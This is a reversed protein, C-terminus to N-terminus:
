ENVVSARTSHAAARFLRDAIARIGSALPAKRKLSHSEVHRTDNSQSQGDLVESGIVVGASRGAKSQGHLLSEYVYMTKLAVSRWSYITEGVRKAALGMAACKVPDEIVTCIAEALAEVDKPPVVLGTNHNDVVESLGGTNTVVVSRGAAYASLLIGSQYTKLYPLVVVDAATFYYGVEDLPIYQNICRISTNQKLGALLDSYNCSDIRGAILLLVDRLRRRILPFAEVLYELGKYPKIQGFFLIVKMDRPVNLLAKAQERSVRGNRYFLENAGHPVVSITSGEINFLARMEKKDRESHVIIRDVQTYIEQFARREDLGDSDHPLLDHATYVLKFRLRKLAQLFFRDDHRNIVQFHILHPRFLLVLLLTKLSLFFLRVNRLFELVSPHKDAPHEIPGTTPGSNDQEGGDKGWRIAICSSILAKVWSKGFLPYVKFNWKLNRLEYGRMTIVAVRNGLQALAEALQFTYHCIGGGGSPDYLIVRLGQRRRMM